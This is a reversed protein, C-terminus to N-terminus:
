QEQPLEGQAPHYRFSPLQPRRAVEGPAVLQEVYFKEISQASLDSALESYCVVSNTTGLDIGVVYKADAKNSKVM